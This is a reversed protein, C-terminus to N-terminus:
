TVPHWVKAPRGATPVMEYRILRLDVLRQLAAELERSTCHRNTVEHLDRGTRSCQRIAALLRDALADGVSNGFIFRASDEAYQWLAYAAELHEGRIVASKDLLAYIMSLRLVQAESRATVWWGMRAYQQAAEKKATMDRVM